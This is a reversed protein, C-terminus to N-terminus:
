QRGLSLNSPFDQTIHGSKASRLPECGFEFTFSLPLSASNEVMGWVVNKRARVCCLEQREKSCLDEEAPVDRGGHM